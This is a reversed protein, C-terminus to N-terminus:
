EEDIVLNEIPEIDFDNLYSYEAFNELPTDANSNVESFDAQNPSSSGILIGIYVAIMLSTLYVLPQVVKQSIITSFISHKKLIRNEMTQKLRTYYFAHESIETTPKLFVLSQQLNQYIRNCQSCKLLHLKVQTQFEKTLNHDIYDGLVHQVKKCDMIGGKVNSM